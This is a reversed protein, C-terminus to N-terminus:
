YSGWGLGAGWVVRVGVGVGRGWGDMWGDILGGGGGRGVVRRQKGCGRFIQDWSQHVGVAKRSKKKILSHNEILDPKTRGM